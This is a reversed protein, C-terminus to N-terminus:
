TEPGGATTQGRTAAPRTSLVASARAPGGKHLAQRGALEPSQHEQRESRVGSGGGAKAATWPLMKIHVRAEEGRVM